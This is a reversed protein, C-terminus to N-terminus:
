LDQEALEKYKKPIIRTMRTTTESWNNLLDKAFHSNTCEVYDELIHQLKLQQAGSLEALPQFDLLEQTRAEENILQMGLDLVYAIGGLFGAGVNKGTRGFIVATGGTMYELAHDGAGECVFLAGSNRVAFREGVLGQFYAVGSTAGFGLVNGAVVNQHPDFSTTANVRVVLKGGSLGKAAYDNTEGLLKITVGNPLFAGLSQGAVGELEFTLADDPLIGSSSPSSNYRKTIEYGILAGFSRDINRIRATITQAVSKLNELDIKPLLAHDLSDELAHKQEKAKTLSADKRLNNTPTEFIPTLDLQNAKFNDVVARKDLIQSRGIIEDLTRFGLSALIERVQRAVFTFYNVVHQSKGHFNKRLDEDQTAVGVPCTNKNCVRMMICGMVVLPATAFGFEEAGLLAAIIVDRGTKLQGDCQLTVRDRLDNQVLTQQTEALGIEWVTGAHKISSLPAAGTGGDHGSILIVDAHTKTVGAAITGVGYEAALKVHIRARPNAMKLDHILQALDEISYIDHHPPPSVLDIGPTSHRVQAIWPYVKQGPLHGGEGPKAGQALKIQIDTASVLYESTVGFRASAVQKIKSRRSESYIRDVEEGGEGSNSRAGISNMAVALTEHAEGSISGYSMAGTSFRKLISEASEVEGLDLTKRGLEPALRLRFLSRVTMIRGSVADIRDSFKKFLKYGDDGGTSTSQQLFFISEPDFLHEEGARRWKYEGGTDLQAGASTLVNPYGALHRKLVEATITDLGIGGLVSTTGTLYKDVLEKSLGVAGFVQAGRYSMITSIGMKSMIKLVGNGLAFILNQTATKADVELFSSRALNEVTEMALYPNVAAAGYAILLAVHHTERVDGAEVVMSIKTRTQKRLLRHQVAATLLLSPIPAWDRNSDRDSLIIFNSGNDIAADVESFIEELREEIPNKSSDAADAVAFLGKIVVGKFYKGVKKDREIRQIKAFEDNNIVPFPLLLKMAHDQIDELINPEPGIASALSTVNKERISDLPPNTVQAFDQAFYDFLLRPRKSLVALPTDTGMAGLPEKGTNAMPTLILKIDEETYGFARQRRHVSAAPFMIHERHPLDNLKVSNEDLWKRYPHLEALEQKIVDNEVICGRKTDVLLMVGPELRGKKVVKQADANLVGAESAMVVLEDTVMYRGPRLGNRDLLAGILEGDTFSLAVPGDWTEILTSNYEYFAKLADNKGSEWNEFAEPIMMLVSHPLSRGSLHLLELVEDFSGSDSAGPTLIPLLDKFSGGKRGRLMSTDLLGERASFWNRNGRITNIEGNHAINRLPQALEWSPFTNTSFRSHVLAIKAAFADDSLDLFFRQLQKTTLMGKYTITRSSLSAFYLSTTKRAISRVRYAIRDLEIGALDELEDVLVVQSFNPRSNKATPGLASDDFPVERWGLVKLGEDAAIKEFNARQKNAFKRVRSTFAIGTAYKGQKPLKVGLKAFERRVFKDPISTLIGTGDGSNEEAGVAGRHDLNLLVELGAEVVARSPRRELTAVFGLGCADHEREANYLGKRVAREHVSSSVKIM